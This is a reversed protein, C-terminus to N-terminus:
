IALQLIHVVQLMCICRSWDVAHHEGFGARGHMATGAADAADDVGRSFFLSFLGISGSAGRHERQQGHARTAPM